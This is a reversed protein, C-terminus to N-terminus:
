RSVRLMSRRWRGRDQRKRYYESILSKKDHIFVPLKTSSLSCISRSRALGCRKIGGHLKVFISYSPTSDVQYEANRRWFCERQRRWPIRQKVTVWRREETTHCATLLHLHLLSTFVWLLLCAYPLQRTSEYSMATPDFYFIMIRSVKMTM